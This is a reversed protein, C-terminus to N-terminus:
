LGLRTEYPRNKKAPLKVTENDTLILTWGSYCGHEALFVFSEKIDADNRFDRNRPDEQGNIMVRYNFHDRGSPGAKYAEIIKAQEM